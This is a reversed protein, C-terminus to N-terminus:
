HNTSYESFYAVVMVLKLANEDSGLSIRSSHATM